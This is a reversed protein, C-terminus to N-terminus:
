DASIGHFSLHCCRRREPRSDFPTAARCRSAWRVRCSGTRGSTSNWSGVQPPWSIRGGCSWARRHCMLALRGNSATGSTSRCGDPKHRRGSMFGTSGSAGAAKRKCPSNGPILAGAAAALTESLLRAAALEEKTPQGPVIIAVHSGQQDFILGPDRGPRLGFWLAAVLLGAALAQLFHKKNVPRHDPKHRAPAPRLRTPGNAPM